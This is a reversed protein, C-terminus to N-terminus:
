TVTFTPTPIDIGQTSPAHEIHHSKFPVRDERVSPAESADRSIGVSDVRDFM